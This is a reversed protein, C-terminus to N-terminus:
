KRSRKRARPKMAYLHGGRGKGFNARTVRRAWIVYTGGGESETSSPEIFEDRKKGKEGVPGIEICGGTVWSFV